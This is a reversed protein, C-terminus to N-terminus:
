VSTGEVAIRRILDRSQDGCMGWTDNTETRAGNFIYHPKSVTAFFTNWIRLRVCNITSLEPLTLAEDTKVCADLDALTKEATTVEFDYTLVLRRSLRLQFSIRLQLAANLKRLLDKVEAWAQFFREVFTNNVQSGLHVHVRRLQSLTSPKNVFRSLHYAIDKAHPRRTALSVFEQSRHRLASNQDPLVISRSVGQGSGFPNMQPVPWTTLPGKTTCTSEMNQLVPVHLHIVNLWYPLGRTENYVERCTLALAFTDRLGESYRCRTLDLHIGDSEFFVLGYIINRVDAPLALLSSAPQKRHNVAACIVSSAEQRM